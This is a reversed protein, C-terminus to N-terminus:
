LVRQAARVPASGGGLAGRCVDLYDAEFRAMSFRSAVLDRGWESQRRRLDPDEVLRRVAAALASADGVETLCVDLSAESGALEELVGVRGTVVPTGCAWSEIPTLAFGEYLSACLLADCASYLAPLEAYPVGPILCLRDAPFTDMKAHQPAAVVLTVSEPLEKLMERVVDRGKGYDMRGVALLLFRDEPLGWRARLAAVDDQPQFHEIDVANHVVRQGRLGYFQEVERAARRSVAIRQAGKGSAREFFANVRGVVLYDLGPLV